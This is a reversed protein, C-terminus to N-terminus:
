GKVAMINVLFSWYFLAFNSVTKNAKKRVSMHWSTWLLAYLMPLLNTVPGSVKSKAPADTCREARFHWNCSPATFPNFPALTRILKHRGSCFQSLTADTQFQRHARSSKLLPLHGSKHRGSVFGRQVLAQFQMHARSSKLLPLRGSRDTDALAM